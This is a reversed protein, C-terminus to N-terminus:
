QAPRAATAERQRQSPTFYTSRLHREVVDGQKGSATSRTPTPPYPTGAGAAGTAGASLAPLFDTLASSAYEALPKAEAKDGDGLIAYPVRVVNGKDDKGDRVETRFGQSKELAALVAPKYGALQAAEERARSRSFESVKAALQQNETTLRDRDALAATIADPTLNLAALKKYREAEDGRLVVLGDVDEGKLASNKQRLEKNESALKYLASNASGHERILANVLARREASRSTTAPQETTTEQEQTEDAEPM